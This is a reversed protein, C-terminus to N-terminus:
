QIMTMVPFVARRPGYSEKFSEALDMEPQKGLM